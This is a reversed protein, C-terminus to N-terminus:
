FSILCERYWPRNASFPKDDKNQSVDKCNTLLVSDFLFTQPTLTFATYVYMFMSWCIAHLSHLFNTSKDENYVPFSTM